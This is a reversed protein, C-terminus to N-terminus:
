KGGQRNENIWDELGQKFAPKAVATIHGAGDITVVQWDSRVQLLPDIYKKRVPDRSGAFMRVPVKVGKVQEPTVALEAVSRSATDRMHAWIAQMAGGKPMYGMGGMAGSIARDPHHVIFNLAIIGGLSYGVIHAKKIHLHDLLAAADEVWQSGYAAADAPKDSRGYGPLDYAIVFHDKALVDMTGPLQWNMAASSYWGHILLVPEGQGETLYHIKVGKVTFFDSAPAAQATTPALALLALLVAIFRTM